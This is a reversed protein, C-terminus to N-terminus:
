EELRQVTESRYIDEFEEYFKNMQKNIIDKYVLKTNDIAKKFDRIDVENRNDVLAYSFAQQMISFCIDPYRGDYEYVRNTEETLDVIFKMIKEKIFDTYKMKAGTKAEYKPISGCLIQVTQEKTPEAVNIRQFRRNFARDTLIFQEFEQTTTAGIVKISGRDLLPKFINAFDMSEDADGILTHIEDIFLILKDADRVENLLSQIKLESTGPITGILAATNLKYITYGKLGNPVEDRQIRYSLGEVIATKGIGPLGVLIASKEPTLLTLILQKIEEDRGIAPNTVYKSESINEGYKKLVSYDTNM